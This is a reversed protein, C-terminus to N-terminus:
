ALRVVKIAYLYATTPIGLNGNIDGINRSINGFRDKSESMSFGYNANDGWNFLDTSTISTTLETSPTLRVFGLNYKTKNYATPNQIWM